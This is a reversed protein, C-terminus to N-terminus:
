KVSLLSYQRQSEPLVLQMPVVGTYGKSCSKPFSVVREWLCKHQYKCVAQLLWLHSNDMKTDSQKQLGAPAPTTHPIFIETDWDEQM